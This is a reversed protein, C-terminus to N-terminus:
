YRRWRWCHRTVSQQQAGRRIQLRPCPLLYGIQVVRLVALTGRHYLLLTDLQM